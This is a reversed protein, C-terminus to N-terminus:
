VTSSRMNNQIALTATQSDMLISIKENLTKAMIVKKATEAIAFVEAQFVTAQLTKWNSFTKIHILATQTSVRELKETESPDM